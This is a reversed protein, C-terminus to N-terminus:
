QFLDSTLLHIRTKAKSLFTFFFIVSYLILFNADLRILLNSDALEPRTVDEVPSKGQYEWEGGQVSFLNRRVISSVRSCVTHAVANSHNIGGVFSYCYKLISYNLRFCYPYAEDTLQRIRIWIELLKPRARFKARPM